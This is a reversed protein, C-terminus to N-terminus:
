LKRTQAEPTCGPKSNQLRWYAREGVVCDGELDAEPGSRGLPGSAEQISGKKRHSQQM